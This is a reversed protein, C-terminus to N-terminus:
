VVKNRLNRYRFCGCNPTIEETNTIIFSVTVYLQLSSGPAAHKLNMTLFFNFTGTVVTCCKGVFLLAFTETQNACAGVAAARYPQSRPQFHASRNENFGTQVIYLSM